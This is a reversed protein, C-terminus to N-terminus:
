AFSRESALQETDLRENPVWAQSSASACYPGQSVDQVRLLIFAWLVYQKATHRPLGEWLRVQSDGKGSLIQTINRGRVRCCTSSSEAPCVCLQRNSGGLMAISDPLGVEVRGWMRGYRCTQPLMRATQPAQAPVLPRFPLMSTALARGANAPLVKHMWHMPNEEGKLLSCMLM